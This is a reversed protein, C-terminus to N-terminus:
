LIRMGRQIARRGFIGAIGIALPGINPIRRLRICEQLVTRVGRWSRSQLSYRLTQAFLFDVRTQNDEVSLVERAWEFSPAWSGSASISNASGVAITALIESCHVPDFGDERSLRVLWDWDQHRPLHENWPHRLALDRQVLLTSTFLSQRASSPSRRRFLYDAVPEAPSLLQKPVEPVLLEGTASLCQRARCSSFSAGREICASVQTHSKKSDWVDDDDLFAIWEGQARKMGLNRAYSAGREGGTFLVIHNAALELVLLARPDEEDLDAVVIIETTVYIQAEASKLASALEPRGTTPIVASMTALTM